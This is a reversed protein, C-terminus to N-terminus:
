LTKRKKLCKGLFMGILNLIAYLLYFDNKIVMLKIFSIIVIIAIAIAIFLKTKKIKESIIIGLPIFFIIEFLKYTFDYLNIIKISQIIDFNIVRQISSNNILWYLFSIGYLVIFSISALKSIENDYYLVIVLYIYFIQLIIIFISICFYILKNNNYILNTIIESTIYYNYFLGLICSIFFIIIKRIM